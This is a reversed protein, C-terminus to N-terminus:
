RSGRRRTRAVTPRGSLRSGPPPPRGVEALEGARLRRDVGSPKRSGKPVEEGGIALGAGLDAAAQHTGVKRYGVGDRRNCFMTADNRSALSASTTASAAPAHASRVASWSVTRLSASPRSSSRGITRAARASTAAPSWPRGSSAALPEGRTPSRRAAPSRRVWRPFILSSVFSTASARRVRCGLDRVCSSRWPPLRARSCGRATRRCPRPLSSSASRGISRGTGATLDSAM